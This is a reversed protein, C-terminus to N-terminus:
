PAAVDVVKDIIACGTRQAVSLASFTATTAPILVTM